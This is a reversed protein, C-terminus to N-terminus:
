SWDLCGCGGEGGLTLAVAQKQGLGSTRVKLRGVVAEEVTGEPSRLAIAHSGM